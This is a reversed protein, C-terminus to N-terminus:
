MRIVSNAPLPGCETFTGTINMSCPWKSIYPSWNDLFNDIKNVDTMNNDLTNSKISNNTATSLSNSETPPSTPLGEDEVCPVEIDVFGCASCCADLKCKDLPNYCDYPCKRVCKGDQKYLVNPCKETIKTPKVCGEECKNSDCLVQKHHIFGEINKNLIKYTFKHSEYIINM